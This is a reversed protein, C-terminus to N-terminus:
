PKSLILIIHGLLAVYTGESQQKLSSDSYIHRDLVFRADDDDNDSLSLSLSLSVLNKQLDLMM